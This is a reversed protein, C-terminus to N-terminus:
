EGEYAIIIGCLLLLMMIDLALLGKNGLAYWAVKGFTSAGEPAKINSTNNQNQQDLYNLCDVLRQVSFLNWGAICLLGFINLLIGSQRAAFPLALTGTGACTKMLNIVTGRYTALGLEDDDEERRTDSNVTEQRLLPLEESPTATAM